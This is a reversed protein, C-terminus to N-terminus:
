TESEGLFEGGYFVNNLYLGCAPATFGAASRNKEKLIEPISGSARKGEAIWILTGVMIRVMNYLFGDAEVTFTVCDGERTVSANKVTRINDNVPIKNACFSTFDHTGVFDQAERNLQTEDLRHHYFLARDQLFPNRGKGDYIKYIYQKGLASYRPHFDSSVEFCDVVAIDLPLKANLGGMLRFCDIDRETQLTCCFHNAHVGTDTRSCGTVPERVGFLAEVADQVTEQVSLANEQVQWGHYRTGLFQITLLINRM